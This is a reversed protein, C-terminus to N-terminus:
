GKKRYSLVAWGNFFLAFGCLALLQPILEGMASGKLYVARMVQMFYKLPNIVTIAQAWEPMSSVPTFLGSMLLFILMFFFIVFMAQQMTNSHNSIVLGLGSVVLIYVSAYLYITILSGAPFLRYVLAALGFCITLVIFGIVWYPILKGLIFTLKKVPTVNIQEITGAEKEGVINLAPLFGSIQTLLMVIIAPIMFVRYDLHANFRYYPAIDISSIINVTNGLGWDDRLDDSFDNMIATLYSSGISALTGNVANASIMVNAMGNRILNKEFEPQIELIIDAEGMEISEMAQGNSSSFGALLFYGSSLVKQVLRQSCTSHDNDVINIQVNKIERNAAWPLILLMVVPMMLILKPLFSNRIIQKFEKELLYKLM